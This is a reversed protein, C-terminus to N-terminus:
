SRFFYLAAFIFLLFMTATMAYANGSIAFFIFLALSALLAAATWDYVKSLIAFLGLAFMIGLLTSVIQSGLSELFSSVGIVPPLTQLQFATVFVTNSVFTDVFGLGVAGSAQFDLYGVGSSNSFGDLSLSSAYPYDSAYVVYFVYSGPASVPFDVYFRGGSIVAKLLSSGSSIVVIGSSVPSGDSEYYATGYIRVTAPVTVVQLATSMNIIIRDLYLTAIRLGGPYSSSIYYTQSSANWLLVDGYGSSNSGVTLFAYSGSVSAFANGFSLTANTSGASLGNSFIFFLPVTYNRSIGLRLSSVSSSSGLHLDLTSPLYVEVVYKQSPDLGSVTINDVMWSWPKDPYVMVLSGVGSAGAIGFFVISGDFYRRVVVWSGFPVFRIVISNNPIYSLGYVSWLWVASSPIRLPNNYALAHFGSGSVDIYHTGNFFTGDIFVMLGSGNVTFNSYISSIEQSPLARSYIMLYSYVASMFGSLGTGSGVSFRQYAQPNSANSPNYELVTQESAPVSANFVMSGNIWYMLVRSSSFERVLYFWSNGAGSYNYWYFNQSGGSTKTSFGIALYSYMSGSGTVLGTFPYDVVGDGYASFVSPSSGAKPSVPYFFEVVSLESWGYMSFPVGSGDPYLGIVLSQNVGDLYVNYLHPAVLVGPSVVASLRMGPMSMVASVNGYPLGISAYVPPALSSVGSFVVSSANVLSFSLSSPPPSSSVSAPSPTQSTNLNPIVVPSSTITKVLSTFSISISLENYTMTNSTSTGSSATTVNVWTTSISLTPTFYIYSSGSIFYLSGNMLGSPWQYSSAFAGVSVDSLNINVYSISNSYTTSTAVSAVSTGSFRIFPIAYKYQVVFYGGSANLDVTGSTFLSVTCGAVSCVAFPSSSAFSFSVLPLLSSLNLSPIILSSIVGSVNPSYSAFASPYVYVTSLGSVNAYLFGPLSSGMHLVSVSPEVYVSPRVLVWNIGYSTSSYKERLVIYCTSGNYPRVTQSIFTDNLVARFVATSGSQALYTFEVTYNTYNVPPIDLYGVNSNAGYGSGFYEIIQNNPRSYQASSIYNSTIAQLSSQGGGAVPTYGSKYFGAGIDLGGNYISARVSINAPYCTPLARAIFGQSSGSYYLVGNAIGWGSDIQIYSSLTNTTFNDFLIFLKSPNNYSAYPNSGGYFMLAYSVSNASLNMGVWIVARKNVPDFSEVWYYLPNGNLDTFYISSPDSVYSWGGWGDGIVIKVPYNVLNSGSNEKVVVLSVNANYFSSLPIASSGNSVVWSGFAPNKLAILSSSVSVPVWINSPSTSVRLDPNGFFILVSSVSSPNDVRVWLYSSSSNCPGEFWFPLANGNQDTVNIDACDPRMLGQSILYSTNLPVAVFSPSSLNLSVNYFGKFYSYALSSFMGSSNYVTMYVLPPPVSLVSFSLNLVSVNVPSISYSQFYNMVYFAFVCDESLVNSSSTPCDTRYFATHSSNFAYRGATNSSVVANALNNGLLVNVYNHSYNNPTGAPIVVLLLVYRYFSSSLTNNLSSAYFSGNVTGSWLDTFALVSVNGIFINFGPFSSLYPSVSEGSVVGAPSFGPFLSLVVGSFLLFVLFVRFGRRFGRGFGAMVDLGMSIYYIMLFIFVVVCLVM